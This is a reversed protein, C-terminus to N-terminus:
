PGPCTAGAVQPLCRGDMAGRDIPLGLIAALTPAIDITEVPADSATAAIGPRWFLIPVRRDYDWASGHTAVYGAAPKAIPTIRPKLLVVLDGSREADFSARAREALTWGVPSTTPLPTRALQDRTFVAAVQPHARYAALAAVLVRARLPPALARDVYLDGFPGSGTLPSAALGFKAALTKGMAAPALAPDVRAADIAGKLRAREPVDAGGHDATLVVAYDLKWQDLLRLLGGLDRDLSLLQLCMEEGETGYRHGVYDTASLSVAVLDPARGEGLGLDDILAAALAITLGDLAPTARFAAADGAARALRAGGLPQGDSLTVPTARSPCAPVAPLAAGPAALLRAAVANVAAVRQPPASGPALDTVFRQGDWYWRQDPRQGSMMVAARDKGSVAITRSIPWRAKMREGLTPVRLHIPSVTYHEFTSGPAREDEACYIQKDARAAAPDFWSNAIIGTRAPRDGTLITSHGPCTETAAHGQYGNRFVMGSAMRALGGSFSGRYEDFLDASFQDVSIAIILRPPAAHVAGPILALLLLRKRM